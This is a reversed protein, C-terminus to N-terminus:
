QLSKSPMVEVTEIAQLSVLMRVTKTTLFHNQEVKKLNNRSLTMEIIM